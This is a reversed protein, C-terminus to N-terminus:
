PRNTDCVLSLDIDNERVGTSQGLGLGQLWAKVGIPGWRVIEATVNVTTIVKINRDASFDHDRMAEGDPLQWTVDATMIVM